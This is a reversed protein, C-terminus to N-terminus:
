AAKRAIHYSMVGTLFNRNEVDKFGMGALLATLEGPTYFNHIAEAFYTVCKKSEASSGFLSATLRVSVLLFL